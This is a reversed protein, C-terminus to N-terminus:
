KKNQLVNFLVQSMGTRIRRPIEDRKNAKRQVQAYQHDINELSLSENREGYSNSKNNSRRRHLGCFTCQAKNEQKKTKM